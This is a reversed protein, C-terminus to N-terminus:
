KQSTEPIVGFDLWHLEGHSENHFPRMLKVATPKNLSISTALRLPLHFLSKASNDIDKRM